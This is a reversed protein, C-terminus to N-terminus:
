KAVLILTVTMSGVTQSVDSMAVIRSQNLIGLTFASGAQSFDVLNVAIATYGDPVAYDFSTYYAGGGSRNTIAVNTFTRSVTTIAPKNYPIKSEAM